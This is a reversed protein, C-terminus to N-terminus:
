RISVSATFYEFDHLIVPCNNKPEDTVAQMTSLAITLKADMVPDGTFIAFQISTIGSYKERLERARLILSEKNNVRIFFAVSGCDRASNCTLQSLSTIAYALEGYHALTQAIEILSNIFRINLEELSHDKLMSRMSIPYPPKRNIDIGDQQISCVKSALDQALELDGIENKEVPHDLFRAYTELLELLHDLLKNYNGTENASAFYEEYLGCTTATLEALPVFHAGGYARALHLNFLVRSVRGNGDTFPHSTLIILYINIANFLSPGIARPPFQSFLLSKRKPPAIKLWPVYVMHVNIKRLPEERQFFVSRIASAADYITLKPPFGPKGIFKDMCAKEQLMSYCQKPSNTVIQAISPRVLTADISQFAFDAIQAYTPQEKKLATQLLVDVEHFRAQMSVELDAWCLSRYPISYRIM